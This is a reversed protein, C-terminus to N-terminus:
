GNARVVRRVPDTVAEHVVVAGGWTLLVCRVLEALPAGAGLAQQLAGAAASLILAIVKPYRKAWPIRKLADTLWSVVPAAVLCWDM